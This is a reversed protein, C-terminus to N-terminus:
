FYHQNLNLQQMNIKIKYRVFNVIVILSQFSAPHLPIGDWYKKFFQFCGM